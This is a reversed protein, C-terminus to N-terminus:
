YTKIVPAVLPIPYSSAFNNACFPKLRRRSEAGAMM